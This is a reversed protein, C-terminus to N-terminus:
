TFFRQQRAAAEADELSQCKLALRRVEGVLRPVDERAHACFTADDKATAGNSRSARLGDTTVIWDGDSDQGFTAVLWNEGVNKMADTKWPGVQAENARKEIADLEGETITM